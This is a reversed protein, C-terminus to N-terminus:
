GNGGCDCKCFIQRNSGKKELEKVVTLSNFRQGEKIEVRKRGM